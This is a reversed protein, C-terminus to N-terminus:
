STATLLPCPTSRLVRQHIRPLECSRGEARPSVGLATFDAGERRAMGGILDPAWVPRVTVDVWLADSRLTDALHLVWPQAELQMEQRLRSPPTTAALEDPHTACGHALILRGPAGSAAVLEAAKWAAARADPSRDVGVVACHPAGVPPEAWPQVSLLPAPARRLLMCYDADFPRLADGSLTRSAPETVIWAAREKSALDLLTRVPLSPPAFVLPADTLQALKRAWRM